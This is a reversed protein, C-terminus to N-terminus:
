GKHKCYVEIEGGDGLFLTYVMHDIWQGSTMYDYDVVFESELLADLQEENVKQNNLKKLEELKKM